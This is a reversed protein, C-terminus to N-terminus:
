LKELRNNIEQLEKEIKLKRNVIKMVDAPIWQQKKLYFM